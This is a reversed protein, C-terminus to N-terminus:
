RIYKAATAIKGRLKATLPSNQDIKTLLVSMKTAQTLNNAKIYCEGAKYAYNCAEEKEGQQLSALSLNYYAGAADPNLDIVKKFEAIAGEMDNKDWKQIGLEYHKEAQALQKQKSRIGTQKSAKKEQPQGTGADQGSPQIGASVSRAKNLIDQEAALADKDSSEDTVQEKQQALEAQAEDLKKQIEAKEGALQRAKQEKERLLDASKRALEKEKQLEEAAQAAKRSDNEKKLILNGADILAQNSQEKEKELVEQERIAQQLRAEMDARIKKQEAIQLRMEDLRGINKEERGLKEKVLILAKNLRDKEDELAKLNLAQKNIRANIENILAAEKEIEATLMAINKETEKDKEQQKEAAAIMNTLVAASEGSEKLKEEAKRLQEEAAIRQDRIKELRSQLRKTNDGKQSDSRATKQLAQLQNKLEVINKEAEARAKDDKKIKGETEAIAKREKEIEGQLDTQGPSDQPQPRLNQELEALRSALLLREKEAKESMTVAKESRALAEARRTRETELVAVANESDHARKKAEKDKALLEALKNKMESLNQQAAALKDEAQQASSEYELREKQAKAYEEQVRDYLAIQKVQGALEKEAADAQERLKQIEQRIVNDLRNYEALSAENKKAQENQERTKALIEEKHKLTDRIESLIARAQKLKAQLTQSVAEPPQNSIAPQEASNGAAAGGVISVILFIILKNKM